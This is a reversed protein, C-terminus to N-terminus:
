QSTNVHYVSRQTAEEFTRSPIIGVCWQFNTEQDFCSANVYTGDKERKTCGEDNGTPPDGEENVPHSPPPQPPKKVLSKYLPNNSDQLIIVCPCHVAGIKIGAYGIFGGSHGAEKMDRDPAQNPCDRAHQATCIRYKKWTPGAEPAAGVNFLFFRWPDY